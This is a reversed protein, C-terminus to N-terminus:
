RCSVVRVCLNLVLAVITVLPCHQAWSCLVSLLALMPIQVLLLVMVRIVVFLLALMVIPVSILQVFSVGAIVVSLVFPPSVSVPPLDSMMFLLHMTCSVVLPCVGTRGTLELREVTKRYRVFLRDGM